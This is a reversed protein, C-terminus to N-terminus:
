KDESPMRKAWELFSRSLTTADGFLSPMEREWKDMESQVEEIYGKELGWKIRVPDQEAWAILSDQKFYGGMHSPKLDYLLDGLHKFFEPCEHKHQEYLHSANIAKMTKYKAETKMDGEVLVGTDELPNIISEMAAQLERVTNHHANSKDAIYLRYEVKKRGNSYHNYDVTIQVHVGVVEAVRDAQAQLVTFPIM